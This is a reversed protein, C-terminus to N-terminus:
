KSISLPRKVVSAKGPENPKADRSNDKIVKDSNTLPMSGTKKISNTEKAGFVKSIIETYSYCSNKIDADVETLQEYKSDPTKQMKTIYLKSFKGDRSAKQLKTCQNQFDNFIAVPSPGEAQLNTQNSIYTGEVRCKAECIFQLERNKEALSITSFTILFILLFRKM